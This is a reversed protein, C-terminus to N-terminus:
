IVGIAMAILVLVVSFAWMWLFSYRIHKGMEAGALGIGLWLAPSFPSVFTGIVNGILMAYATSASSVGYETTIGDVIPLLAFYYADTSTLLDLPVGLLGIIIHLYPVVMAPLIAVMSLAISELMGTERIIGLFVGAALIVSAMSLASPAHVKIRDMQMNVNPYNVVLVVSLAVMFILGPEWTAELLAAVTLLLIVLNVIMLKPRLLSKEEDSMTAAQEQMSVNSYNQESEKIEGNAFKRAIRRKERIGLFFALIIVMVLGIIQVPILPRWVDAPTEGLVSAVRGTPGAWPVMNMVSASTAIILLLLYRSMHLKKYLPLLAPITFLFTTAGAGDLHAVAGVIATCTAVTVVNGKSVKILGSILPNFLGADQLIGFFLIAFIFMIVVNMVTGIGSEFFTAIETPSFGAAFAGIIPILVMGVVPSIKGWMLLGVITIIILLGIITLM